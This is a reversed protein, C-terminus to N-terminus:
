AYKSISEIIDTLIKMRRKWEDLTQFKQLWKKYSEEEIEKQYRDPTEWELGEVEIYEPNKSIKQAIIPWECYFGYTNETTLQLLRKAIRPTLRWCASIIDRTDEFRLLKSAVHNAISETMTQTKPHTLLARSTRGILLFDNDPSLNPIKKMENPYTKAWHLLRDFDCYFIKSTNKTIAKELAKRYTDPISKPGTLTKFRLNKLINVINRHTTPTVVVYSSEFTDRIVKGYRTIMDDLRNELDHLTSVLVLEVM